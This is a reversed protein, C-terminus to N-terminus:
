KVLMVKQLKLNNVQKLTVYVLHRVSVILEGSSPCKTARFMYVISIFMCSFSHMLNTQKCLNYWSAPDIICLISCCMKQILKTTNNHWESRVSSLSFLVFLVHRSKLRRLLGQPQRHYTLLDSIHCVGAAGASVSINELEHWVCCFLIM